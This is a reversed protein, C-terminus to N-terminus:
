NLIYKKLDDPSTFFYKGGSSEIKEKNQYGWLVSLTKIGANNGTLVDQVSDGIMVTNEKPIGTESIIKVAFHPNPKVPIHEVQGYCSVFMNEDFFYKVLKKVCDDPKNSLVSILVGANKLDKLLDEIGGYVRTKGFLNKRYNVMYDSFMNEFLSENLTQGVAKLLLNKTGSGICNMCQAESIAEFGFNELTANVAATIDGITDLLTGDLDFICSKISM